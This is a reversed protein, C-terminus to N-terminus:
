ERVKALMDRIQEKLEAIVEELKKNRLRLAENEEEVKCAMNLRRGYFLSNGWGRRYKNSM